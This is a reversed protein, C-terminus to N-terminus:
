IWSFYPQSLSQAKVLWASIFISTYTGWTVTHCNRLFTYRPAAPDSIHVHNIQRVLCDTSCFSKLQTLKILLANESEGTGVDSMLCSKLNQWDSPNLPISLTIQSHIERLLLSNSTALRQLEEEVSIGTFPSTAKRQKM